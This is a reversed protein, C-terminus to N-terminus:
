RDAPALSRLALALVFFTVGTGLLVNLFSGFTGSAVGVAWLVLWVVVATPAIELVFLLGLALAGPSAKEDGKQDASM